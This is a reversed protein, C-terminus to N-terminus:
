NKSADLFGVFGYNSKHNTMKRLVLLLNSPNIALKETGNLINMWFEGYSVRM